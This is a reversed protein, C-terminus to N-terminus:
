GDRTSKGLAIRSFLKLCKQQKNCELPILWDVMAAVSMKTHKHSPEGRPPLNNSAQFGLGETAFLFVTYRANTDLEEGVSLKLKTMKKTNDKVYFAGWTIGLFNHSERTLWEVIVNRCAKGRM